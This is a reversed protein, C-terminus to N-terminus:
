RRGEGRGGRKGGGNEKKSWLKGDKDRFSGKISGEDYDVFVPRKLVIFGFPKAAKQVAAFAGEENKYEVYGFGKSQGSVHNRVVRVGDEVVKGCTRFAELVEEESAEYPLNRVFVTRCGRPQERAQGGLAAGATTGARPANAEKVTVYRGGLDHGNVENGLARARSEASAFVVHGYGRLRGSDQWTPLRLQLVDGCGRRAFFERVEEETSAFPLGEVFVTHETSRLQNADASAGPASGSLEGGGEGGDAGDEGGKKKRSRKRKRKKGEKVPAADGGEGGGSAPSVDEKAAGANSAQGDRDDSGDPEKPAYGNGVDDSAAATMAFDATEAAASTKSRKRRRRKKSPEESSEGM